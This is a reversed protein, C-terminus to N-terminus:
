PVRSQAAKRIAGAIQSCAMSYCAAGYESQEGRFKFRNDQYIKEALKADKEAQERKAADIAVAVEEECIEQVDTHVRPLALFQYLRKVVEKAAEVSEPSPTM